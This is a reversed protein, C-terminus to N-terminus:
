QRLLKVVASLDVLMREVRRNGFQMIVRDQAEKWLHYSRTLTKDGGATVLIERERRDYGMTVRILRHRELVKLNRSLTTRDVAIAEALVKVTVPGQERITQLLAIQTARLGTPRLIGDYFQTVIRSAKRINFCVCTQGSKIQINGSSSKIGLNNPPYVSM